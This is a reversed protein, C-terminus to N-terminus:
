KAVPEGAAVAVKVRPGAMDRDIAGLHDLELQLRLWESEHM